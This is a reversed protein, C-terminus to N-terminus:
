LQTIIAPSLILIPEVIDLWNVNIMGDQPTDFTAMATSLSNQAESDASCVSDDATILAPVYQHHAEKINDFSVKSDNLGAKNKQQPVYAGLKSYFTKSDLAGFSVDRQYITKDGIAIKISPHDRHMVMDITLHHYEGLEIKNLSVSENQYTKNEPAIPGSNQNVTNIAAVLTGDQKIHLSFPPRDGGLTKMSGGLERVQFLILDNPLDTAKFDFSYRSKAAIDIPSFNSIEARYNGQEKPLYFTIDNDGSEHKPQITIHQSELAKTSEKTRETSTTTRKPHWNQTNTNMSVSYGSLAKVNNQDFRHIHSRIKEGKLLANKEPNETCATATSM